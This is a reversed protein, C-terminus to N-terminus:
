GWIQVLLADEFKYYCHMKVEPSPHEFILTRLAKTEDSDRNSFVRLVALYSQIFSKDSLMATCINYKVGKGLYDLMSDFVKAFLVYICPFLTEVDEKLHLLYAKGLETAIESCIEDWEISKVNKILKILTVSLKWKTLLCYNEPRPLISELENQIDTFLKVPIIMKNKIVYDRLDYQLQSLLQELRSKASKDQWNNLYIKMLSLLIKEYRETQVEENKSSLLFATLIPIMQDSSTDKTELYELLRETVFEPWMVEMISRTSQILKRIMSEYLEKDSTAQSIFGKLFNYCKVLYNPRVSIPISDVQDLLEYIKKDEEYSLNDIFMELLEWFERIKNADQEKSLLNYTFKFIIARITVNKSTKWINGFTIKIDDQALKTFTFQIGHKQLSVPANLLKPIHEKSDLPSLNHFIALLSPLTYQLYDGKAYSLVTDPPPHPRAKHMNKAIHKQLSLLSGDINDWNIKFEKPIYQNIIDLLQDQPLIACLGSILAKHGNPKDLRSLYQQTANKALSQPFYIRLKGLLRMLSVKDNCSMTELISQCRVLLEPDHKLANICVDETPNIILSQEFMHKRWSKKFNYLFSLNIGWQNQENINIFEKIKELIVPYDAIDKEWDKLLDLIKSLLQIVEEFEQKNKILNNLKPLMYNYLYNFIKDKDDRKLKEGYRLLTNFSFKEIIEPVQENKLVKHVIILEICEQHSDYENEDEIYVNMSKFIVDLLDWTTEDYNNIIKTKSLLCNIFSNKHEIKNNIHKDCYYKLLAKNNHINNGACIVLINLISYKDDSPEARIKKTLESFAVNFPAFQYWVYENGNKALEYLKSMKNIEVDDYICEITKNIHVKDIFVSKVFSFRHEHPMAKIFIKFTKFKFISSLYYYPICSDKLKKEAQTYLFDKINEKKLYKVFTAINLSGAYKEFNNIIRESCHKMLINTMKPNFQPCEYYQLKEVVDLYKKPDTNLFFIVRQLKDRKYGEYSNIGVELIEVSKECLRKFLSSSMDDIHKQVKEKIFSVSCNPLWKLAKKIDKEYNFFAEVRAEDKLNNRIYKMLKNKAKTTMKSFMETHLYEPEIFYAYKEDLLWPSKNIARSVYLMDTEMLVNRVYVIDKKHCALDIQMLKIIDPGEIEASIISQGCEIGYKVLENYLKHREGLISDKEDPAM